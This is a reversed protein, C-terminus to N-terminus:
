NEQYFVRIENLATKRDHNSQTLVELCLQFVEYTEAKTLGIFQQKMGDHFLTLWLKDDKNVATVSLKSERFGVAGSDLYKLCVACLLSVEGVSLRLSRKNTWDPVQKDTVAGFEITLIKKENALLVQINLSIHPPRICVVKNGFNNM